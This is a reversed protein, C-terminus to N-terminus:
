GQLTSGSMDISIAAFLATVDKSCSDIIHSITKCLLTIYNVPIV